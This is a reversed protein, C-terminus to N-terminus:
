DRIPAKIEHSEFDGRHTPLMYMLGYFWIFRADYIGGSLLSSFFYLICIALVFECEASREQFWRRILLLMSSILVVLGLVGGEACVHLILNHPYAFVGTISQFGGLGVGAVPHDFFIRLAESFSVDRGSFYQTEITLAYFRHRLFDLSGSDAIMTYIIYTLVGIILCTLLMTSRAVYKPLVWVGLFFVSLVLGIVGGRSGSALAAVILIPMALVVIRQRKAFYLYLGAILGGGVVRVFVNPGGGFASMRDIGFGSFGSSALGGIGFILGAGFTLQLILTTERKARHRLFLYSLALLIPVLAVQLALDLNSFPAWSASISMYVNLIVSSYMFASFDWPMKIWYYKRSYIFIIALFFLPLLFYYAVLSFLGSEQLGESFRTLTYKGALLAFFLLIIACDDIGIQYPRDSSIRNSNYHNM